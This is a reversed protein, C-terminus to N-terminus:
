KKGFFHEELMMCWCHYVPLHLEQVRYTEIEPVRVAVDAVDALEGGDSGTLGIVKIGLARAVVTANMINKSNGSTSIGLFVDGTRGYGYLQQAFVGLGDVDNIYATTLAEHAVLPIAMLGCELTEALKPGRESDVSNLKESFEVPVPRPIKFRKMLEGAIHESDAASGGNGAILLKGGNEYSDEMLLYAKGLSQRCPKLVPYRSILTDIHECLMSDVENITKM